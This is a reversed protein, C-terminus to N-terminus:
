SKSETGSAGQEEHVIVTGDLKRMFTHLEELLYKASEKTRCLVFYRRMEHLPGRYVEDERLLMFYFGCPIHPKKLPFWKERRVIIDVHRPVGKPM